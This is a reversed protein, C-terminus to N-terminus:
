WHAQNQQHCDILLILSHHVGYQVKTFQIPKEKKKRLHMCLEHQPSHVFLSCFFPPPLTEISPRQFIKKRVPTYTHVSTQPWVLNHHNLSSVIQCAVDTCQHYKCSYSYLILLWCSAFDLWNHAPSCPVPTWQCSYILTICPLSSLFVM